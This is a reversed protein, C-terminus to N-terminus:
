IRTPQRRCFAAPDIGPTDVLAGCFRVELLHRDPLCQTMRSHQDQCGRQKESINTTIYKIKPERGNQLPESAPGIHPQDAPYAPDRKGRPRNRQNKDSPTRIARAFSSPM